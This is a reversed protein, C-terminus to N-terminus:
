CKNSSIMCKRMQDNWTEFNWEKKLARVGVYGHTMMLVYLDENTALKRYCTPDIVM